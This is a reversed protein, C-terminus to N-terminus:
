QGSIPSGFRNQQVSLPLLTTMVVAPLTTYPLPTTYHATTYPPTTLLQSTTFLTASNHPSSHHLTNNHATTFYHISHRLQTTPQPTLQQQTHNRHAGYLTASNHRTSNNDIPSYNSSVIANIEDNSKVTIFM